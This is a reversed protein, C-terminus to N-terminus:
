KIDKFYEDLKPKKSMKEIDVLIPETTCKYLSKNLLLKM